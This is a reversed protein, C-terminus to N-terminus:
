RDKSRQCNSSLLWFGCNIMMLGAMQNRLWNRPHRSKWYRMKQSEVCDIACRHTIKMLWPGFADHNRLATLSQYAKVFADQSADCALHYEHLVNLAVLRVPREYRKVLVAFADKEGNLVTKVVQADSEM